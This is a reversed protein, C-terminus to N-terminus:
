VGPMAFLDILKDVAMKQMEDAEVFRLGNEHYNNNKPGPRTWVVEGRFLLEGHGISQLAKPLELSLDMILGAKLPGPSMLLMGERHVDGMRGIELGTKRDTVKLYYILERRTLHRQEQLVLGEAM